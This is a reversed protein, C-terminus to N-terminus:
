SRNPFTENLIESVESSTAVRSQLEEPIDASTIEGDNSGSMVDSLMHSVENTSAIGAGMYTLNGTDAVAQYLRDVYNGLRERAKYDNLATKIVAFALEDIQNQLEGENKTRSQAEQHLAERRRELAEHLNNTSRLTSVILDDVKNKCAIM